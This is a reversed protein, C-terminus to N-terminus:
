ETASMYGPLWAEHAAKIDSLKLSVLGKVILSPGGSYGLLAAPVGAKAADALVEDASGTAILYRAQDEGYFFAHSPVTSGAPQAVDLGTGGAVCMEALAVLLGGDSLDHCASVRHQGIQDRVFDGNRREAALDVPPPAGEERGCAERLYLSQGLWGTTEGILVIGLGGQTLRSGVALDSSCM